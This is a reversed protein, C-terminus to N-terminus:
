KNRWAKFKDFLGRAFWGIFVGFSLAMMMSLVVDGRGAFIGVTTM